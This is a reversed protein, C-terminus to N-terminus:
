LALLERLSANPLQSIVQEQAEVITLRVELCEPDGFLDQSHQSKAEDRKLHVLVSALMPFQLDGENAMTIFRQKSDPDSPDLGALQLAAKERMGLQISGTFDKITVARIWIRDGGWTLVPTGGVPPEVEVFNLQFVKTHAIAANEGGYAGILAVTALQGREELYDRALTPVWTDEATLKEKGREM